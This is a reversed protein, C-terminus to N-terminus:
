RVTPLGCPAQRIRWRRRLFTLRCSLGDTDWEAVHVSDAVGDARGDAPPGSNIHMPKSSLTRQWVGAREDAFGANHLLVKLKRAQLDVGGRAISLTYGFPCPQDTEQFDRGLKVTATETETRVDFTVVKVAVIMDKGTVEFSHRGSIEAPKVSLGMSKGAESGAVERLKAEVSVAASREVSIRVESAEVTEWLYEPGKPLGEPSAVRHHVLGRAEVRVQSSRELGMGAAFFGALSLELKARGSSGTEKRLWDLGRAKRAVLVDRPAGDSIPGLGRKWRSGPKLGARPMTLFEYDARGCGAACLAALVLAAAIRIRERNM